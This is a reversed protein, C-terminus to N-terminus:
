NGSSGFGGGRDSEEKIREYEATTIEVLVVDPIKRFGIQAIKFGKKIDVPSGTNNVFLIKIEGRYEADITGPANSIYNNFQMSLGSRPRVVAEWGKPMIVRIGTRLPRVEGVRIGKEKELTFLDWCADTDVKKQPIVADSHMKNFHITVVPKQGCNDCQQM